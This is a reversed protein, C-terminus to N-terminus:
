FINIEKNFFFYFSILFLQFVAQKRRMMYSLIHLSYQKRNQPVTMSEETQIQQLM